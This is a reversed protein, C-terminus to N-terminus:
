GAVVDPAFALAPTAAADMAESFVVTVTFSGGADADTILVDSATVSNVTPGTNDITYLPGSVGGDAAGNLPHPLNVVEDVITDNDVLNLRVTGDGAVGTITVTRVAGTGTVTVNADTTVTGTATITFDAPDVGLVNESFTVTYAVSDANTPTAGAGVVSLVTPVISDETITPVVAAPPRGAQGDSPGTGNNADAVVLFKYDTNPTTLLVSVNFTTVGDPINQSAAFTDTGPTFTGSNDTDLYVSVLTPNGDAPNEMTGMINYNPADVRVAAAPDTIVPTATPTIRSELALLRPTAGPKSRTPRLGASLGLQRKLANLWSKM